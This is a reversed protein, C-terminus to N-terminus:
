CLQAHFQCPHSYLIQCPWYSLLFGSFGLYKNPLLLEFHRLLSLKQTDEWLALVSYTFVTTAASTPCDTWFPSWKKCMDVEEEPFPRNLTVFKPKPKCIEVLKKGGKGIVLDDEMINKEQEM